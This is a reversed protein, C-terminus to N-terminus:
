PTYHDALARRLRAKARHLRSRVTGPPLALTAALEPYDMGAWVHLLLLDRQDGPMSALTGAISRVAAQADLRDGAADVFSESIQRASGLPDTGVRAFARWARVESRHQSHLLNTLIGYLWPRASPATTDYRSRRAFAVLFTDAVLDEASQRGVRRAAYDYLQGAYREFLEGFWEPPGTILGADSRDTLHVPV